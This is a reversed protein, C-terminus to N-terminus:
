EDGALGARGPLDVKNGNGEVILSEVMRGEVMRGEVMRSEAM